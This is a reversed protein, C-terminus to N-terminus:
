EIVLSPRGLAVATAIRVGREDTTLGFTCRIFHVNQLDVEGGEYRLRTGIFTVNKWHMGDLTQAAGGLTLNEVRVNDVFLRSSPPELIEASSPMLTADLINGGLSEPDLTTDRAIGRPANIGVRSANGAGAPPTELSSRFQALEIGMQATHEILRSNEPHTGVIRDLQGITTEFFEPKAERAKLRAVTVNAAARDVAVEAETIDGASAERAADELSNAVERQWDTAGPRAMATAPVAAPPKRVLSILGPARDWVVTGVLAAVLMVILFRAWGPMEPHGSRRPAWRRTRGSPPDYIDYAMSAGCHRQRQAVMTSWAPSFAPNRMQLAQYSNASV